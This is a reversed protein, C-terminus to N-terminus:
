GELTVFDMRPMGGRQLYVLANGKGLRTIDQASVADETTEGSQLIQLNKDEERFDAAQDDRWTPAGSVRTPASDLHSRDVKYPAVYAPIHFPRLGIDLFRTWSAKFRVPDFVAPALDSPDIGKILKLAALSEYQEEQVVSFRQVKGALKVAFDMTKDDISGLFVRTNFNQLFKDSGERGLAYEISSLSQTIIIGCVGATRIENWIDADSLHGGATMLAQYEDAIFFRMAYADMEHAALERDQYRWWREREDAFDPDNIQSERAFKFWMTKLAIAILRGAAGFKIQSINLGTVGAGMLDRPSVLNDGRGTAFGQAIDEYHVFSVLMRQANAQVGSKTVDALTKWSTALWTLSTQMSIGEFHAIRARDESQLAKVVCELAYDLQADDSMLVFLGLFSYPRFGTKNSWDRGADLCEFAQALVAVNIVLNKGSETWFASEDAGGSAQSMVAVLLDGLEAPSLGDCPNMRLEGEGTGIVRLLSKDLGRSNLLRAVDRVLAGKNDLVFMSIPFGKVQQDLLWKVRPIVINRTKGMGTGGLVLTHQNMDIISMSAGQGGAIAGSHGRFELVGQSKGFAYVPSKDRELVEIVQRDFQRLEKENTEARKAYRQISERHVALQIEQVAKVAADYVQGRFLSLFLYRFGVYALLLVLGSMLAVSIIFSAVGSAASRASEVRQEDRNREQVISGTKFSGNRQEEAIRVLDAQDFVDTVQIADQLSRARLSVDTSLAISLSPGESKKEAGHKLGTQARDKFDQIQALLEPPLTVRAAQPSLFVDQLFNKNVFIQVYIGFFITMVLISFVSFQYMKEAALEISAKWTDRLFDENITQPAVNPAVHAGGVVRGDVFVTKELDAPVHKYAWYYKGPDIITQAYEKRKGNILLVTAPDLSEEYKAVVTDAEDKLKGMPDHYGSIRRLFDGLRSEWVMQYPLMVFTGLVSFIALLVSWLGNLLVKLLMIVPSLFLSIPIDILDTVKVKM